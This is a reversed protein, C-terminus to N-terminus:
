TQTIPRAPPEGAGDAAVAVGRLVAAATASWPVPAFDRVVEAQWERLGAPDEIVARIARYADTVNEPDFYRALRGGAEPLSSSRAVLCPKGFALSETVPLGWGEYLSPFVTFACGRYLAALEADSADEILRVKGGLYGTNELQKMLDEVLWGVRGAFVLLPVREAPMDDLLRRWVRVLLQHNKRAEITSVFLVFGDAPAPRAPAAAPVAPAAGFGTGIPIVQVPRPLAIGREAAFREVDGATARSIALVSDAEPLVAGFWASFVRVLGRDCWEPRRIPIIDYVLVAFRVGFRQKAERVLGAYDPQSWPAGLVALVDGPRALAALDAAPVASAPARGARALGRGAAVAAFALFGAFAVAAQGQLRVAALLRQRVGPPLRHVLKRLRGRAPPEPAIGGAPRPAPEPKPQGTLRDFLAAVEAWPVPSFSRRGPDHRLFRVRDGHQRQLERYIEFALRQIGSPRPNAAAYEFLDEVDLWLCPAPGRGAVRGDDAETPLERAGLSV